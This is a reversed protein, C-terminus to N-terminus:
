DEKMKICINAPCNKARSPLTKLTCSIKSVNSGERSCSLILYNLEEDDGREIILDHLHHLDKYTYTQHGNVMDM